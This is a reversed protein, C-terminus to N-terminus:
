DYPIQLRPLDDDTVLLIPVAIRVAPAGILRQDVHRDIGPIDRHASKALAHALAQEAVPEGVRAVPIDGAFAVPTRRKRDPFAVIRAIRADVHIPRDGLDLAIEPNTWCIQM